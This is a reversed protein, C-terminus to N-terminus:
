FIDINHSYYNIVSFHFYTLIRIVCLYKKIPHTLAIVSLLGEFKSSIKYGILDLFLHFFSWPLISLQLFHNLHLIIHLIYSGYITFVRYFDEGSGSHRNGQSKSYLM